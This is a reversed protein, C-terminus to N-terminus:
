TGMSDEQYRWHRSHRGVTPHASLFAQLGAYSEDHLHASPQRMFEPTDIFLM